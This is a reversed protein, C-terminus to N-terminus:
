CQVRVDPILARTAIARLGVRLDDIFVALEFMRFSIGTSTYAGVHHMWGGEKLFSRRAHM